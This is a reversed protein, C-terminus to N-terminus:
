RRVPLFSYYRVKAPAHSMLGSIIIVAFLITPQLGIIFTMSLISLKLLTSLGRLQILWIGNGWIEIIMMISGTAVTILMFPLWQERSLDYLFAGGVGAIGTLHFSRLIISAWRQGNFSRSQKPFLLTLIKM